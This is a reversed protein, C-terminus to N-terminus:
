KRSMVEVDGLDGGKCLKVYVMNSWHHHLMHMKKTKQERSSPTGSVLSMTSITNGFNSLGYWCRSHMTILDSLNALFAAKPCHPQRICPLILRSFHTIVALIKWKLYVRYILAYLRCRATYLKSSRHKSKGHTTSRQISEFTSIRTQPYFTTSSHLFGQYNLISSIRLVEDGDEIIFLVTESSPFVWTSQQCSTTNSFECRGPCQIDNWTQIWIICPM